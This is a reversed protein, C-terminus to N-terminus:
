ILSAHANQLHGDQVLGETRSPLLEGVSKDPQGLDKSYLVSLRFTYGEMLIDVADETAICGVGWKEQMSCNVVVSCDHFFGVIPLSM